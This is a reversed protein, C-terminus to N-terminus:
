ADPLAYCVTVKGMLFNPKQTVAKEDAFFKRKDGRPAAIQLPGKGLRDKNDSKKRRRRNSLGSCAQYSLTMSILLGFICGILVVVVIVMERGGAM